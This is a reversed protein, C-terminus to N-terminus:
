IKAVFVFSSYSHNECNDGQRECGESGGQSGVLGCIVSDTGIFANGLVKWSDRYVLCTHCLTSCNNWGNHKGVRLTEIIVGTDIRTTCHAQIVTFKGVFSSQFMDLACFDRKSGNTDGDLGATGVEMSHLVSHVFLCYGFKESNWIHKASHPAGMGGCIIPQSWPHKEGNSELGSPPRSM